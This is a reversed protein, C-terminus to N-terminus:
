AARSSDGEQDRRRPGPWLHDKDHVIPIKKGKFKDLIVQRCRAKGPRRPAHASCTGCAASPSRPNTASPTIVYM